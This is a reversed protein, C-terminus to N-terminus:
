QEANREGGGAWASLWDQEEQTYATTLRILDANRKAWERDAKDLKQGRAKRDRIRVVQAYLCDGIEFYASLFTWWHLPEPGRIERGLVRNVPAVILAFDQEWDMVKPGASPHRDSGGNIFWRMRDLAEQLDNQGFAEAEPYFVYLSAAARERETLEPDTMAAMLTLIDRYEWRIEREQGSVSVTTPLSTTM